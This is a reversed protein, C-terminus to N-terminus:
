FSTGRRNVDAGAAIMRRVTHSDNAAVAEMLKNHNLDISGPVYPRGYEELCVKPNLKHNM